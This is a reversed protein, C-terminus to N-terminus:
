VLVQKLDALLLSLREALADLLALALGEALLLAFSVDKVPWFKVLAVTRRSLRQRTFLSPLDTGMM